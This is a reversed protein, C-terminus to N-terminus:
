ANMVLVDGITIDRPLILHMRWLFISAQPSVFVQLPSFIHLFFHIYFMAGPFHAWLMKEYNRTFQKALMKFRAIEAPQLFKACAFTHLDRLELLLDSIQQAAPSPLKAILVAAEPKLLKAMERGTCAKTHPDLRVGM